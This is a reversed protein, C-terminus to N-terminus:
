SPAAENFTLQSTGSYYMFIDEREEELDIETFDPCPNEGGTLPIRVSCSNSMSTLAFGLNSSPNPIEPNLNYYYNVFTPGPNNFQMISSAFANAASALTTSLRGAQITSVSSGPTGSIDIRCDNFTNCEYCLVNLPDTGANVGESWMGFDCSNITNRYVVDRTASLFSGTVVIGYTPALGAREGIVINGEAEYRRCFDLRIGQVALQAGFRDSYQRTSQAQFSNNILRPGNYCIVWASLNTNESECERM